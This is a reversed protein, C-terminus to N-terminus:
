FIRRGLQPEKEPEEFDPEFDLDDFTLLEDEDSVELDPKSGRKKSGCVDCWNPIM